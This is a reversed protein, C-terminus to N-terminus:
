ATDTGEESVIRLGTPLAESLMLAQQSADMPVLERVWRAFGKGAPERDLREAVASASEPGVDRAPDGTRRAMQAVALALSSSREWKARVLKELWAEASERSVVTNAPGYVPARAALRGLAWIEAESAKGKAVRPVLAAALEQKAHADIRELSAAVQWLERAEQKGAKWRLPKGKKRAEPLLVPRVEQHIVQQQSRTLGGAARKWMTWWEARGQTANAFALGRDFLRWLQETRWSDREEGWGPRLLFGALNFWRAEHDPTRHRGKELELLRDLLRRICALPWADKGAALAEELRRTIQVPEIEDGSFCADLLSLAADVSDDPVILEQTDDPVSGDADPGTAGEQGTRARLDFSLRWRHDTNRSLCWVELTGTETLHVRLYVPVDRAALSKGFRLVTAMEPLELVSHAPVDLVAGADDGTRTSSAYISFRVPQNAAVVFDHDRVDIEAGEEMGRPAICLVRHNEAERDDQLGLYYSRAAGGAIRVGFGRRAFGYAVAGRSVALDLDAGALEIPRKGSWTELLDMVRSRVADPKVAGGNFLVADPVAAEQGTGDATRLFTALHRTISPDSSYPLGFEVLGARSGREPEASADVAPFFGDLVEDLIDKGVLDARVTGAVVGRGRGAVSVPVKQPPDEGLLREKAERCLASLQQWRAADLGASGARALIRTALALDMNDGGLLIHDGVSVRELGVGDASRRVAVTSFDTTGGGVDLVLITEHGELAERWDDHAAIWAYIAAQPEEVLRLRPLGADAASRVTLERAVEDFSAPVTLVLDQEELPAEPHAVNWAARLHSLIATSAEVPSVKTVDESGGWPLIAADRDVGGHCLWSKASVVQRGAVRAGLKRALAGVARREDKAWPLELAGDPVDHEGALYLASPLVPRAAVEGEGVLQAIEFSEIAGGSVRGWSVTTNTTGLDIGVVFQPSESM